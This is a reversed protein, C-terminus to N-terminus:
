ASPQFDSPIKVLYTRKTAQQNFIVEGTVGIFGGSGGTIINHPEACTYTVSFSTGEPARPGEFVFAYFGMCSGGPLTFQSDYWTGVEIGDMGKVTVPATATRGGDFTERVIDAEQVILKARIFGLNRSDNGGIEKEEFAATIAWLTTVILAYLKM